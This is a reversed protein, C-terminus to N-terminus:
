FQYAMGVGNGNVNLKLQSVSNENTGNEVEVAKKINKSYGNWFIISSLAVGLGSGAILWGTNRDRDRKVTEGYFEVDKISLAYGVGFGVFFSGTYLVISGVTKNTRAKKIHNLATPNAFVDKYEKFKYGQREKIFFEKSNNGLQVIGSNGEETQAFAFLPLFSLAIILKRM